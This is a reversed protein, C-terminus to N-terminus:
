GAPSDYDNAIIVQLGPQTVLQQDILVFTRAVGSAYTVSAGTYLTNSTPTPTTGTPVVVLTYTGSPVNFYGTNTNFTVGTLVPKVKDITSGSPILYLDVAGARVSQDIFRVAIQGTPAAITQDKLILEQLANAYNGILVTYQASAVFTGSASVLQTHTGAADVNIGYSGPTIPVYSTITGLGLNYALVAAGQYIDLGPADPSADIIRLQSVAPSGTVVACGALPLLLAALVAVRAYFVAFRCPTM